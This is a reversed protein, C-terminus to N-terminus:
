YDMDVSTDDVSEGGYAQELFDRVKKFAQGSTSTFDGASEVEARRWEGTVGAQYEAVVVIESGGDAPKVEARMRITQQSGGGLANTSSMVKPETRITNDDVSEIQFGQREFYSRLNQLAEDPPSDTTVRFANGNPTDVGTVAETISQNLGYCGSLSVLLALTLASLATTYEFRTLTKM